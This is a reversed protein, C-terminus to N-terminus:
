GDNFIFRNVLQPKYYYQLYNREHRSSGGWFVAVGGFFVFLFLCVFFVVFCVFISGGLFACFLCAFSYMCFSMCFQFQLFEKIKVKVTNM